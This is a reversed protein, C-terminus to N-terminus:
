FYYSRSITLIHCHYTLRGINNFHIIQNRHPLNEHYIKAELVAMIPCDV